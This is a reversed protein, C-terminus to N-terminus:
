LVVLGIVVVATVAWLWGNMVARFMKIERM